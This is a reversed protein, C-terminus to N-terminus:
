ALEGLNLNLTPQTLNMHIQVDCDHTLNMHMVNIQTDDTYIWIRPEILRQPLDFRQLHLGRRLYQM